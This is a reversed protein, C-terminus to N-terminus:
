ILDPNADLHNCGAASLNLGKRSVLGYETAGWSPFVLTRASEWGNAKM